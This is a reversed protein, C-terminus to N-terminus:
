KIENLSALYDETYVDSFLGKLGVPNISFIETDPYYHKAFMKAQACGVKVNRIGLYSLKSKDPEPKDYFHNENTTDCGVLYIEKPYTFLAFQLARGVVSGLGALPHYCIDKYIKQNKIEGGESYFRRVNENLSYNEPLTIWSANSVYMGVFIKGQIREFSKTFSIDGTKDVRGDITFLYNLPIDERRWSFNVGIHIADPIPKYYKATPGSAFIVVKKGRFRNRYEAFAKTNVACVENQEAIREELETIKETFHNMFWSMAQGSNQFQQLAAQIEKIAEDNLFVVNKFGIRALSQEAMEYMQPPVAVIMLGSERFHLLYEFPIVPLFHDFKQMTNDVPDVKGAAVCCIRGIFNSYRLYELTIFGEGGLPFLIVEDYSHILQVFDNVNDVYNM